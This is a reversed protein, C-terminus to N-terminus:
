GFGTFFNKTKYSVFDSLNHNLMDKAIQVSWGQDLRVIPDISQLREVMKQKEEFSVESDFFALAM